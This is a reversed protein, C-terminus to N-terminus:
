RRTLASSSYSAERSRGAWCVASITRGCNPGPSVTRMPSGITPMSFTTVSTSLRLATFPTRAPSPSSQSKHAPLAGMNRHLPRLRFASNKWRMWRSWTALGASPALQRFSALGVRVCYPAMGANGLNASVGDVLFYNADPRQGNVSFQGQEFLNAPTLVVGPTLVILSSFSRGNLPLNEVFRNDILTSVSADSTNLLQAIGQRLLKRRTAM